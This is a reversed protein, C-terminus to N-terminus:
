PLLGQDRALAVAEMQTRTETKRLINHIHTRVTPMSVGLQKAVREVTLGASILRLTELERPSLSQLRRWLEQGREQREAIRGVVKALAHEFVPREGAHARRIGEEVQELDVSKPMFGAAGSDLADQIQSPGHFWSLNIVATEPSQALISRDAAAGNMEGIWYDILAVDPKLTGVTKAAEIGNTPREDFLSFDPCRDLAVALAQSFLAQADAVLVTIAVVTKM